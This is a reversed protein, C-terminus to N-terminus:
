TASLVFIIVDSETLHLCHSVNLVFVEGIESRDMHDLQIRAELERLFDKQLAYM